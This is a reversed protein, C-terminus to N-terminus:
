SSEQVRRNLWLSTSLAYTDRLNNCLPSAGARNTALQSKVCVISGRGTRDGYEVNGWGMAASYAALASFSDTIASYM